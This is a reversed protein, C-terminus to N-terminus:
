MRINQRHSRKEIPFCRSSDSIDRIMLHLHAATIALARYIEKLDIKGQLYNFNFARKYQQM